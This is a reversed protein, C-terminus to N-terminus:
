SIKVRRGTNNIHREPKKYREFEQKLEHFAHRQKDSAKQLEAVKAESKRLTEELEAYDERAKKLMKATETDREEMSANYFRRMKMLDEIVDADQVYEAFSEFLQDHMQFQFMYATDALHEIVLAKHGTPLVVVAFSKTTADGATPDMLRDWRDGVTSTKPRRAAYRTGAGGIDGPKTGMTGIVMNKMRHDAM